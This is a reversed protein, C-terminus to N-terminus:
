ENFDIKLDTLMDQISVGSGPAIEDSLNIERMNIRTCQVVIKEITEENLAEHVNNELHWRIQNPTFEIIRSM